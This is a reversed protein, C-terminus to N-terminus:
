HLLNSRTRLNVRHAQVARRQSPSSRSGLAAARDGETDPAASSVCCPSRHWAGENWQRAAELTVEGGPVPTGCPHRTSKLSRSTCICFLASSGPGYAESSFESPQSSALVSAALCSVIPLSPVSAALAPDCGQHFHWESKCLKLEATGCSEDRTGVRTLLPFLLAPELGQRSNQM